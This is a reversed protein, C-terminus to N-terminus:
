MGGPAATGRKELLARVRDAFEPSGIADAFQRMCVVLWNGCDVDFQALPGTANYVVKAANEAVYLLCAYVRGGAHLREEALTLSRVADFAARAERWRKPDRAIAAVAQVPIPVAPLQSCALDLIEAAWAPRLTSERPQFDDAM